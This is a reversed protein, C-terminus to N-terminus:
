RMFLFGLVGAAGILLAPSVRWRVIILAAGAAILLPVPGDIAGRGITYAGAFLLGTTVPGLSRQVAERWPSAGMRWWLRGATFTILSSPGFMAVAAVIAGAAGAASYGAAMVMLMGPGPTLQGIAFSERFQTDTLWGHRSVVERQMEPLVAIGGGFAVVSLKAYVLAIQLLESM